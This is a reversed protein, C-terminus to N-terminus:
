ILISSSFLTERSTCDLAGTVGTLLRVAAASAAEVANLEQKAIASGAGAQPRMRAMPSIIVNPLQRWQWPVSFMLRPSPPPAGRGSQVAYNGSKSQLHPDPRASPCPSEERLWVIRHRLADLSPFSSCQSAGTGDSLIVLIWCGLCLTGQLQWWENSCRRIGGVGAPRRM